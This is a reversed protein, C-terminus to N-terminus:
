VVALHPEPTFLEHKSLQLGFDDTMEMLCPLRATRPDGSLGDQSTNTRLIGCCLEGIEEAAMRGPLLKQKGITAAAVPKRVRSRVVESRFNTTTINRIPLSLPRGIAENRELHRKFALASQQNVHFDRTGNRLGMRRGDAPSGGIIRRRDAAWGASLV